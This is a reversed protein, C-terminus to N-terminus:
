PSMACTKHKWRSGVALMADGVPCARLLVVVRWAVPARRANEKDDVDVHYCGNSVVTPSSSRVLLLSNKSSAELGLREARTGVLAVSLSLPDLAAAGGLSAQDMTWVDYM